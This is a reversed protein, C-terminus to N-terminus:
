MNVVGSMGGREDRAWGVPVLRGGGTGGGGVELGGMGVLESFGCM